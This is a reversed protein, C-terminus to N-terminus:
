PGPSSCRLLFLLLYKPFYYLRWVVIIFLSPNGNHSLPLFIQSTDMLIFTQDRAGNLPDLIQCQLSSHHLDCDHRPDPMAIATATAYALQQLESEVGLRPDEMHWLYLGLFFFFPFTILLLIVLFVVKKKNLIGTGIYKKSADIQSLLGYTAALYWFHFQMEVNWFRLVTIYCLWWLFFPHLRKIGTHHGKKSLSFM